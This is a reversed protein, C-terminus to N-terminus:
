NCCVVCKTFTFTSFSSLGFNDDIRSGYLRGDSSGPNTAAIASDDFNRNVCIRERSTYHSAFSRIAGLYYGEYLASYSGDCGWDGSKVYCSSSSDYCVSCKIFDTDSIEVPLFDTYNTSILPYLKDASVSSYAGGATGSQLCINNSSGGGDRRSVGFAFGNYLQETGGPCDSRGWNIFVTGGGASATITNVYGRNVVDSFDVYNGVTTLRNGSMDLNGSMVGDTGGSNALFDNSLENWDAVSLAEGDIKSYNASLAFVKEGSIFVHSIFFVLFISFAGTCFTKKNIEIM